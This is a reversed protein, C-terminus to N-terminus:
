KQTKSSIKNILQIAKEGKATDYYGSSLIEALSNILEKNIQELHEIYAAADRAYSKSDFQTISADLMFPKCYDKKIPKKM